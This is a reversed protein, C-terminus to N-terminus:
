DWGGFVEDIVAPYTAGQNGPNPAPQCLVQIPHHGWPFLQCGFWYCLDDNSEAAVKAESSAGMAHASLALSNQPLPIKSPSSARPLWLSCWLMSPLTHPQRLDMRILPWLHRACPEYSDNHQAPQRGSMQNGSMDHGSDVARKAWKDFNDEKNEKVLVGIM